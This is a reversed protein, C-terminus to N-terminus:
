CPDRYFCRFRHCCDCRLHRESWKMRESGLSASIQFTRREIQRRKPHSILYRQEVLFLDFSCNAVHTGTAVTALVIAVLDTPDSGLLYSM